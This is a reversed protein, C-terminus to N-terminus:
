GWARDGHFTATYNDQGPAVKQIMVKGLLNERVVWWYAEGITGFTKLVEIGKLVIVEGNYKEVFEEHHEVYYAFEEEFM